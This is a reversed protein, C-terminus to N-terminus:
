SNLLKCPVVDSYRNIGHPPTVQMRIYKDQFTLDNILQNATVKFQKSITKKDPSSFRTIPTGSEYAKQTATTLDRFSLDDICDLLGCITIKGTQTQIYRPIDM